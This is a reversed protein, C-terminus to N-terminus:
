EAAWGFFLYANADAKKSLAICGAPKSVDDIRPDDKEILTKAYLEPNEGKPLTIVKFCTKEAITGTYEGEEYETEAKEKAKTFAEEPTKGHAITYFATARM